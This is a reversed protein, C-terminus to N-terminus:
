RCTVSRGKIRRLLPGLFYRRTAAKAFESGSIFRALSPSLVGYIEVFLRGLTSRQLVDDRFQRFTAVEPALSSGYAATAVFCGGSKSESSSKPSSKYVDVRNEKSWAAVVVMRHQELSNRVESLMEEDDIAFSKQTVDLLDRGLIAMTEPSVYSLYGGHFLEGNEDKAFSEFKLGELQKMIRRTVARKPDAPGGFLKAGSKAILLFVTASGAAAVAVQRGASVSRKVILPLNPDTSDFPGHTESNGTDIDDSESFIRFDEPHASLLENFQSGVNEKTM